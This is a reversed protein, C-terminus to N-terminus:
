HSDGSDQISSISRPRLAASTQDTQISLGWISSVQRPNWIRLPSISYDAMLPAGPWHAFRYLVNRILPVRLRPPRRPDCDQCNPQKVSREWRIENDAGTPEEQDDDKQQKQRYNNRMEPIM